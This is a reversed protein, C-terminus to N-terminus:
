LLQQKEHKGIQVGLVRMGTVTEMSFVTPPSVLLKGVTVPVTEDGVHITGEGELVYFVVSQAMECPPLKENPKLPIIQVKFNKSQCLVNKQREEYPFYEVNKLDFVQMNAVGGSCAIIKDKEEM